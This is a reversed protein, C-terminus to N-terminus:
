AREEVTAIPTGRGRPRTPLGSKSRVTAGGAIPQLTEIQHGPRRIRSAERPGSRNREKAIEQQLL